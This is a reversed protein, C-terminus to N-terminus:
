GIFGESFYPMLRYNVEKINRYLISITSGSFPLKGATFYYLIVGMSWVDSKAGVYPIGSIVEPAAFTPTGCFSDLRTDSFPDFTTGMGFDTILLDKNEDLLLNELKLDRHVINANHSHDMASVLQRFYYRAKEETFFEHATLFDKM